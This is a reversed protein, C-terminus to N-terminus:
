VATCSLVPKEFYRMRSARDAIDTPHGPAELLPQLPPIAGEVTKSSRLHAGGCSHPHQAGLRTTLDVRPRGLYWAITKGTDFLLTYAKLAPCITLPVHSTALHRM